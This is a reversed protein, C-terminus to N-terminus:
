SHWHLRQLREGNDFLSSISAIRVILGEFGATGTVLIKYGLILMQVLPLIALLRINKKMLLLVGFFLFSLAGILEIACGILASFFNVIYGGTWIINLLGEFSPNHVSNLLRIFESLINSSIGIIALLGFVLGCIICLIGGICFKKQPKTSIINGTM